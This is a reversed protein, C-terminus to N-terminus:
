LLVDQKDADGLAAASKLVEKAMPLWDTLHAGSLMEEVTVIRIKDDARDFVEHQFKGYSHAREYCGKSPRNLCLLVGMDAGERQVTGALQDVYAPTVVKDSKVSFFLRGNNEKSKLFYAIGDIGGDGGSGSRWRGRPAM